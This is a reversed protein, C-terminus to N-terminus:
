RSHAHVIAAAWEYAARAMRGLDDVTLLEVDIEMDDYRLRVACPGLVALEDESLPAHIGHESLLASLLELDHTRRFEVEHCFLISKYCKEVVQQAHFCLISFHVDAAQALVELARLDREAMLLM